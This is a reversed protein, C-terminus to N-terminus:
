CPACWRWFRRATRDPRDTRERELAARDPEPQERHGAVGAGEGPRPGEERIVRVTGQMLCARAYDSPTLKLLRAREEVAAREALSLRVTFNERLESEALRPRAMIKKRALFKKSVGFFRKQRAFARRPNWLPPLGKALYDTKAKRFGIESGPQAVGSM